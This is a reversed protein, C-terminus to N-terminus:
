NSGDEVSYIQRRCIFDSVRHFGGEAPYFSPNLKMTQLAFSKKQFSTESKM